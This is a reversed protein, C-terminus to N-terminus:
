FLHFYNKSLDSRQTIKSVHFRVLVSAIFDCNAPVAVIDGSDIAKAARRDFLGLVVNINVNIAIRVGLAVRYSALVIL